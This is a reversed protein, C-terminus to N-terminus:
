RKRMGIMKVMMMMVSNWVYVDYSGIEKEDGDDDGYVVIMILAMMLVM